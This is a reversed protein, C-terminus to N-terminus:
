EPPFAACSTTTRRHRALWFYLSVAIAAGIVFVMRKRARVKEANPEKLLRVFASDTPELWGKRTVYQIADKDSGAALGARFDTIHTPDQIAPKPDFGGVAEVSVVTALLSWVPQVVPSGLPAYCHYEFSLPLRAASPWNTLVSMFLLNTFGNGLPGPLRGVRPETGDALLTAYVPRGTAPDFVAKLTRNCPKLHRPNVLDCPNLVGDLVQQRAFAFWIHLSYNADFQPTRVGPEVVADVYYQVNTMSRLQAVPLSNVYTYRYQSKGDYGVATTGFSCPDQGGASLLYRGNGILLDFEITKGNKALYNTSVLTGSVRYAAHAAHEDSAPVTLCVALSGWWCCVRISRANFFAVAKRLLLKPVSPVVVAAGLLINAGANEGVAPVRATKPDLPASM